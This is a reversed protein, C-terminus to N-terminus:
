KKRAIMELLTGGTLVLFIGLGIKWNVQVLLIFGLYIMVGTISGALLLSLKM